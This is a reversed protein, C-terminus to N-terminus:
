LPDLNFNREGVKQADENNTSQVKMYQIVKKEIFESIEKCVNSTITVKKITVYIPSYIPIVIFTVILLFLPLFLFNFFMKCAALYEVISIEKQFINNSVITYKYIAILLYIFKAATTPFLSAPRNFMKLIIPSALVFNILVFPFITNPFTMSFWITYKESIVVYITKNM